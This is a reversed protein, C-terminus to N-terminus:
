RIKELQSIRERLAVNDHRLRSIRMKLLIVKVFFCGFLYFLTFRSTKRM